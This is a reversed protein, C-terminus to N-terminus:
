ITVHSKHTRIMMLHDMVELGVDKEKKNWRTLFPLGKKFKFLIIFGFFFRKRDGTCSFSTWLDIRNTVNVTQFFFLGEPGVIDDLFNYIM